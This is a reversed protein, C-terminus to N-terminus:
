SWRGYDREPANDYTREPQNWRGFDQKVDREKIREKEMKKVKKRLKQVERDKEWERKLEGVTRNGGNAKTIGTLVKGQVGNNKLHKQLDQHITTLDFKNVVDKCCIKEGQEHKDDKVTPVFVYHLHPRGCKLETKQKGDKDLAPSGDKNVLKVRKGEDYHVYAQVVNREGGYRSTLFDYTSQFFRKQQEPDTVEAPCTVIWGAIVKVDKRDYCYLESKRQKLYEYDSMGRDPHLQYNEKSLPKYIDHNSPNKIQRSNHRLIQVADHLTYKGVSAM